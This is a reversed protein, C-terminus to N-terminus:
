SHEEYLRREERTAKWLTVLHIFDGQADTREEFIVTYLRGKVWGIARFQAPDENREDQYYPRTWLAEIEEFGVGRSSNRRLGESKQRSFKFRM